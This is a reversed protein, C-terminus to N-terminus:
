QNTSDQYIDGISISKPYAQIISELLIINKQNISERQSNVELLNNISDQGYYYGNLFEDSRYFVYEGDKNGIITVTGYIAYVEAMGRLDTETVKFSDNESGIFYMKMGSVFDNNEDTVMVRVRGDKSEYVDMELESKIIIASREGVDSRIVVLYAGMDQIPLEITTESPLYSEEYNLSYEQEIMPKIGSLNVKTVDSLDKETLALIVFDVSYIKATVKDINKHKISLETEEDVGSTVVDDIEMVKEELIQISNEADKFNNRIEKYIKIAEEVEGKAHMSQAILRLAYLRNPSNRMIGDENPFKDYAVKELYPMARDIENNSFRALATLYLYDDLFQSDPYRKIFLEGSNYASQYRETDFFLNMMLFSVEDTNFADPYYTLYATILDYAKNYYFKKLLTGDDLKQRDYQGLQNM